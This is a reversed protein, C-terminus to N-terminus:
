KHKIEIVGFVCDIGFKEFADYGKYIKFSLKNQRKNKLLRKLRKLEKINKLEGNDVLKNLGAWYLRGKYSVAPDQLKDYTERLVYILRRERNVFYRNSMSQFTVSTDKDYNMITLSEEEKKFAYSKFKPDHAKLYQYCMGCGGARYPKRTLVSDNIFTIFEFGSNQDSTILLYTKNLEQACGLSSLILVLALIKWIDM